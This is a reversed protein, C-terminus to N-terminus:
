SEGRLMREYKAVDEASLEGMDNDEDEEAEEVGEAFPNNDGDLEDFAREAKRQQKKYEMTRKDVREETIDNFRETDLEDFLEKDAADDYQTNDIFLSNERVLGQEINKLTQRYQQDVSQKIILWDSDSINQRAIFRDFAKGNSKRAGKKPSGDRNLSFKQTRMDWGMWDLINHYWWELKIDDGQLEASEFKYAALASPDFHADPYLEGFRIDRDPYKRVEEPKPMGPRFPNETNEYLAAVIARKIPVSKPTAFAAMFHFLYRLIEAEVRNPFPYRLRLNKSAQEAAELRAKAEQFGDQGSRFQRRNQKAAELEQDTSQLEEQRANLVGEHFTVNDDINLDRRIEQIANRLTERYASAFYCNVDIAGSLVAETGSPNKLVSYAAWIIRQLSSDGAQRRAYDDMDQSNRIYDNENVAPDYPYIGVQSGEVRDVLITLKDTM